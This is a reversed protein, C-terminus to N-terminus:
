FIGLHFDDTPFGTKFRQFSCHHFKTDGTHRNGVNQAAAGLLALRFIIAANRDFDIQQGLYLNFNYDAFDRNAADNFGSLLDEVGSMDAIALDKNGINLVYHLNAGSLFAVIRKLIHFLQLGTEYECSTRRM